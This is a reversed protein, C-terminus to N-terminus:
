RLGVKAYVCVTAYCMNSPDGSYADACGVYKTTSWLVQTMTGNDPYEKSLTKEWNSMASAVTPVKASGISKSYNLGYEFNSPVKYECNNKAMAKALTAAKNKLSNSWKINSFAGGYQVQYKRRKANHIKIWETQRKSVGALQRASQHQSVRLSKTRTSEETSAAVTSVLLISLASSIFKM